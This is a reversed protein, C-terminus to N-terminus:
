LHIGFKNEVLQTRRNIFDPPVVLRDGLKYTDFRTVFKDLSPILGMASNVFKKRIDKRVFSMHHIVIEDESFVKCKQTNVLKRTPDVNFFFTSTMDYTNSVPHIFSAYHERKPVILYTPEKFYNWNLVVSSDHDDMISKAYELQVPDYFEDVDSSIHHTCGADSSLQVGLNRIATENVRPKLSLDSNYRVIKDILGASALGDLIELQEPPAPSGFYSYPQYIVSIFDIQQRVSKLLFPLFEEGDFLNYAIGLKM